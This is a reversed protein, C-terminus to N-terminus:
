AMILERAGIIKKQHSIMYAAGQLNVLRWDKLHYFASSALPYWSLCECCLCCINYPEQMSLMVWTSL